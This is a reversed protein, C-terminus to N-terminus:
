AISDLAHSGEPKSPDSQAIKLMHKGIPIGCTVLLACQETRGGVMDRARKVLWEMVFVFCRCLYTWMRMYSM